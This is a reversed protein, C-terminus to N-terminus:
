SYITFLLSLQCSICQQIVPLLVTFFLSHYVLFLLHLLVSSFTCWSSSSNANHNLSFSFCLLSTKNGYQQLQHKELRPAAPPAFSIYVLRVVSCIDSGTYPLSARSYSVIRHYTITLIRHPPSFSLSIHGIQVCLFLPFAFLLLSTCSQWPRSILLKQSQPKQQITGSHNTAQGLPGLRQAEWSADRWLFMLLVLYRRRLAFAGDDARRSAGIIRCVYTIAHLSYEASVKRFTHFHLGFPAEM